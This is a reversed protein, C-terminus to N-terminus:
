LATINNLKMNLDGWQQLRLLRYTSTNAVESVAQHVSPWPQQSELRHKLMVSITWLLKDFAHRSPLHCLYSLFRNEFLCRNYSKLWQSKSTRAKRSFVHLFAEQVHPKLSSTWCCWLNASIWDKSTRFEDLKPVFSAKILMTVCDNVDQLKMWHMTLADWHISTGM